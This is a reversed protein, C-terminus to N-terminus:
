SQLYVCFVEPNCSALFQDRIVFAHLEDYSKGVEALILWRGLVQELRALFHVYPEDGQVKMSRFLKRYANADVQFAQLLAKKLSEYDDAVDPPLSVYVKLAKGRLM